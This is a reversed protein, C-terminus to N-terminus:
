APMESSHSCRTPTSILPGWRVQKVLQEGIFSALMARMAFM